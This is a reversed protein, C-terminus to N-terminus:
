EREHLLPPLHTRTVVVGRTEPQKNRSPFSRVCTACVCVCVCVCGVCLLPHTTPPPPTGARTRPPPRSACSSIFAVEGARLWIGILPRHYTRFATTNMPICTCVYTNAIMYVPVQIDSLRYDHICIGLYWIIM